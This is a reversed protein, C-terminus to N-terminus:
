NVNYEPSISPTRCTIQTNTITEISCFWNLTFGVYVLTDSVAPSFNTGNITLLTGGYYSGTNPSVSSITFGYQFQDAGNTIAQSDGAGNNLTVQVTFTGPNGGSLGVIISSNTFNIIKLRYIKGTSNSLFVEVVTQDAGFDSGIIQLTTKLTPNSSTPVLSKILPGSSSIYNYNVSSVNQGNVIVVFTQNGILTCSPM